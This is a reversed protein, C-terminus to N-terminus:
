KVDFHYITELIKKYDTEQGKIDRMISIFNKVDNSYVINMGELKFLPKKLWMTIDNNFPTNKMKDALEFHREYYHMNDSYHYYTGLKLNPYIEKLNLYLSQLVTGFWPADYCIGYFLDSSRMQVKMNLVDNKIYFWTYLTCIFDKNSLYQYEPRNYLAIAQRTNKDKKLSEYVWKFQDGIYLAGYNSNITGDINTLNKWFSSYHAIEEIKRDKLLYWYLEGAFYKWNFKRATHDIIVCTPDIKFSAFLKEKVKLDRPSNEENIETLLRNVEQNISLAM